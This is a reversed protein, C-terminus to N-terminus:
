ASLGCAIETWLFVAFGMMEDDKGVSKETETM